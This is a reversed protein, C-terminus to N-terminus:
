DGSWKYDYGAPPDYMWAELRYPPMTEDWYMKTFSAHGDVFGVMGMANNYHSAGGPAHWSFPWLACFEAVLVTKEPQKISSLKRGAIGPWIAAPPNFHLFNGGNFAYSSYFFKLQQNLSQPIRAEINPNIHVYDYYFTDAPCAFLRAKEPSTGTLGVYSKMRQTYAAFAAPPQNTAPPFADSSDEAYMRIGIGIQRLNNGCVARQATSKARALVPLLLAALVAIIAVVVLLEMLTFGKATNFGKNM